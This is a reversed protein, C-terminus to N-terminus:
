AHNDEPVLRAILVYELSDGGGKATEHECPLLQMMLQSEVAKKPKLRTVGRLADGYPPCADEPKQSYKPYHFSGSFIQDVGNQFPTQCRPGNPSGTPNGFRVTRQPVNYCHAAIGRMNQTCNLAKPNLEMLRDIGYQASSPSVGMKVSLRKSTMPRGTLTIWPLQQQRRPNAIIGLEMKGRLAIPGM